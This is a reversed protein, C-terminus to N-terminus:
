KGSTLSNSRERKSMLNSNSSLKNNNSDKKNNCVNKKTRSTETNKTKLM